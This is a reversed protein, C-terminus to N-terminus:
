SDNQVLLFEPLPTTRLISCRIVSIQIYTNFLPEMFAFHIRLEWTVYYSISKHFITREGWLFCYLTHAHTSYTCICLNMHINIKHTCANILIYICMCVYSRKGRLIWTTFLKFHPGGAWVNLETVINLWINPRGNRLVNRLFYNQLGWHGPSHFKNELLFIKKEYNWNQIEACAIPFCHRSSVSAELLCIAFSFGLM